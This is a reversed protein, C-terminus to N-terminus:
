KWIMFSSTYTENNSILQITYTGENLKHFDDINISNKGAAITANQQLVKKGTEDLVIVKGTAAKDSTFIVKVDNTSANPMITIGKKEIGNTYSSVSSTHIAVDFNGKANVSIIAIVAFLTTFITKM